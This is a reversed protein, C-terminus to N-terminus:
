LAKTMVIFHCQLLAPIDAPFPETRAERYGLHRYYGPLVTRLNVVRLEALRCGRERFHEEAANMLIRSLGSGQRTPEVSLLGIYGNEGRLEAYICGVVTGSDELLLFTGRGMRARVETANLRDAGLFFREVEFAANVLQTVAAVDGEEAHRVALEKPMDASRRGSM